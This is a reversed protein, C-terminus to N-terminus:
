NNAPDTTPEWYPAASLMLEKSNAPAASCPVSEEGLVAATAFTVFREGLFEM